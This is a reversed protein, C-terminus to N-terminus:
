KKPAGHIYHDHNEALDSPLGEAAGILDEFVEAWSRHGAASVEEVRVLTGEAPLDPGELVVVGNKVTGRYTM